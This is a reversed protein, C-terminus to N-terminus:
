AKTLFLVLSTKQMFISFGGFM